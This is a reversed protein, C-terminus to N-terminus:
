LEVMNCESLKDIVAQQERRELEKQWLAPFAKHTVTIFMKKAFVDKDIQEHTMGRYPNNKKLDDHVKRFQPGAALALEQRYKKIGRVQEPTMGTQACIRRLAKGENKNPYHVATGMLEELNKKEVFEQNFWDHWEYKVARFKRSTRGSM